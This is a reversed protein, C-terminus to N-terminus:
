FEKELLKIALKYADDYKVFLFMGNKGTQTNMVYFYEDGDFTKRVVLYPLPWGTAGAQNILKSSM